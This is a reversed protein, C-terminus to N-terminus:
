YPFLWRATTNVVAILKTCFTSDQVALIGLGTASGALAWLAIIGITRIRRRTSVPKNTYKM